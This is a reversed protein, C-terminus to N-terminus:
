PWARAVVTAPLCRALEAAISPGSLAAVSRGPGLVDTIIQTPRLLTDNEIGKAVSVIPMAPPAHPKLRAWVHRMFQCPVASVILDAGRFPADDNGTVRVQPPIRVGPLFRRNEQETVLEQVHQEFYSWMTVQYGKGALLISSVTAMAGDGIMALRQIM